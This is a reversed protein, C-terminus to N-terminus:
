PITYAYTVTVYASVYEYVAVIANPHCPGNPPGGVYQDVPVNAYCVGGTEYAEDGYGITWGHTGSLSWTGSSGTMGAWGASSRLIKATDTYATQFFHGESDDDQTYDELELYLPGPWVCRNVPVLAGSPLHLQLSSDGACDGSVAPDDGFWAVLGHECDYNQVLSNREHYCHNEVKVWVLTGNAPNFKPIPDESLMGFASDYNIGGTEYQFYLPEPDIQPMPATANASRSLCFLSGLVVLSCALWRM